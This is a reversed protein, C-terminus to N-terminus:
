MKFNYNKIELNDIDIIQNPDYTPCDENEM